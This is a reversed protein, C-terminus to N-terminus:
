RAVKIVQLEICRLKASGAIAYECSAKDVFAYKMDPAVDISSSGVVISGIFVWVTM